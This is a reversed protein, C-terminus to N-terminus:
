YLNIPRGSNILEVPSINLFLDQTRGRNIKQKYSIRSIGKKFVAHSISLRKELIYGFSNYKHFYM